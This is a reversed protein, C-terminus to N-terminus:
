PTQPDPTTAPAEEATTEVVPTETAPTEVAPTEVVPKDLPLTETEIVPEEVTPEEVVVPEELAPANARREADALDFCLELTAIVTKDVTANGLWPERTNQAFPMVRVKPLIQAALRDIEAQHPHPLKPKLAM